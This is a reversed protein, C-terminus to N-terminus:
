HCGRKLKLLLQKIIGIIILILSAWFTLFAM